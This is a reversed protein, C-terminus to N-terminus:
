QIGLKNKVVEITKIDEAQSIRNLATDRDLNGERVLEALEYAYPNFNYKEKHLTNALSNLLCNTSNADTDEPKKWGLSKVIELMEEEDYSSFALPNISYPFLEARKFHREELFYPKVKDGLQKYLPQLIINQMKRIMQPNTKVVSTVIPAQGPSMGFIVFPIEKEVAIKFCMFRILSICTTCISSARELAKISYAENSITTQMIKKFVDFNPKVTLLDIELYQVVREINELATKSQFWNDYSLALVNLKYKNKLLYLTYTSDKGGSYAAICDYSNKGKYKEIIEVFKKEYKEKLAEQEEKKKHQRCFICVGDEDFRIGPFNEDL